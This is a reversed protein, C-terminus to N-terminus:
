VAVSAHFLSISSRSFCISSPVTSSIEQLAARLRRRSWSSGHAALGQSDVRSRQFLGPRRHIPVRSPALPSGPHKKILEIMCHIQDALIRLLIGSMVKAGATDDQTPKREHDDKPLRGGTHLDDCKSVTAATRTVPALAESLGPANIPVLAPSVEWFVQPSGGSRRSGREM